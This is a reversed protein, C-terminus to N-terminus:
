AERSYVSMGALWGCMCCYGFVWRYDYTMVSIGAVLPLLDHVDAPTLQAPRGPAPVLPSVALVLEQVPSPHLSPPPPYPPPLLLILLILLLTSVALM